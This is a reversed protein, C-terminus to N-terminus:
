KHKTNQTLNILNYYLFYVITFFIKEWKIQTRTTILNEKSTKKLQLNKEEKLKEKLNKLNLGKHFFYM